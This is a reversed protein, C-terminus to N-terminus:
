SQCLRRRSVADPDGLVIQTRGRTADGDGGESALRLEVSVGDPLARALLRLLARALRDRDKDTAMTPM